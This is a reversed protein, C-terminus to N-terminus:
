GRVEFELLKSIKGNLLLEVKHLGPYLKRTTVPAFSQFKELRLSAKSKLSGKKWKFVKQSLAGRSKQFHIVYDLIFNETKKSANYLEAILQIKGGFRVKNKKLSFRRLKVLSSTVGMLKLAEPNGQKILTRLSRNKIFDMFEFSSTKSEKEWRRLTELVLDPHTRTFDNLHNSVSKRVYLSPDFKLQELIEFNDQPKALVAPVSKGWPLKPRCGESAWRRRHENEQLCEGKLYSFTEKPHHILFERVCFESTFRETILSMLTLSRTPESLAFREIWTSAPWLSFGRLDQSLIIQQIEELAKAPKPSLDNQLTEAILRVRDKLELGPLKKELNIWSEAKPKKGLKKLGEKYSEIVKLNIWNKFASAKDASSAM